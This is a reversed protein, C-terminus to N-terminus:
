VHIMPILVKLTFTCGISALDLVISSKLATSTKVMDSLKRPKPDISHSLTDLSNLPGTLILRKEALFRQTASYDNASPKGATDPQDPIWTAGLSLAPGRLYNM